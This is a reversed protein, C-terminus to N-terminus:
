IEENNYFVKGLRLIDGRSMEKSPTITSPRKKSDLKIAQPLLFQYIKSVWGKKSDEEDFSEVEAFCFARLLFILDPPCYPIDYDEVLEPINPKYSYIYTIGESPTPYLRFVTKIGEEPTYETITAYYYPTGTSNCESRLRLLTENDIETPYNYISSSSTYPKSEFISFDEPLDYDGTGSITTVLAEERLFYWDYASLFNKYADNVRRKAKAIDSTNTSDRGKGAFELTDKVFDIYKKNLEM